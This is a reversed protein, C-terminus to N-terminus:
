EETCNKHDNYQQRTLEVPQKYKQPLPPYQEDLPGCWQTGREDQGALLLPNENGYTWVEGQQSFVSVLLVLGLETLMWYYGDKIPTETTWKNKM